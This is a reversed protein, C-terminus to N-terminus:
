QWSHASTRHVCGVRTDWAAHDAAAGRTRRCPDPRLSARRWSQRVKFGALRRVAQRHRRPACRRARWRHEDAGLRPQPATSDQRAAPSRQEQPHRAKVRRLLRALSCLARLQAQARRHTFPWRRHAVTVWHLSLHGHSLGPEGRLRSQDAAKSELAGELMPVRGEQTSRNPFPLPHTCFALSSAISLLAYKSESQHELACGPVRRM